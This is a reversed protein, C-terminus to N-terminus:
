AKSALWKNADELCKFYEVEVNTMVKHTKKLVSKQIGFSYVVALYKLNNSNLWLNIEYVYDRIDPTALQWKTLDVLCSWPKNKITRALTKTEEGWKKATEFNWSDYAKFILTNDIVKLEYSGHEQM